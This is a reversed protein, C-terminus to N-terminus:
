NAELEQLLTETLNVVGLLWGEEGTMNNGQIDDYHEHIFAAMRRFAAAEIEYRTTSYYKNDPM